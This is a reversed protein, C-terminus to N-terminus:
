IELDVVVVDNTVDLAQNTEEFKRCPQREFNEKAIEINQYNDDNKKTKNYQMKVSYNEM